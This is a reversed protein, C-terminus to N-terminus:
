RKVGVWITRAPGKTRRARVRHERVDFGGRRLRQTFADNRHASWVGLVGGQRLAARAQALGREGYLRDNDPRTLGDPGNDVDLLMVDYHDNAIGICAAVDGLVVRARPDRLPDGSCHGFLEKNWAVVEPVLEAVEVVAAADVLQLTRALTFGMGLGGILVRPAARRGLREIALEALEEESGFVRTSMLETGDVRITFAGDHRYCHLEGGGPVKASGVLEQPIVPM